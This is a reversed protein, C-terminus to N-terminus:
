PELVIFQTLHAGHVGYIYIYWGYGHVGTWIKKKKFVIIGVFMYVKPGM